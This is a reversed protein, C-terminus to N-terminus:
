GPSSALLRLNAQTGADGLFRKLQARLTAEDDCAIPAEDYLDLTAVPPTRDPVYARLLVQPQGQEGGRVMVRWQQGLNTLYGRELWCRVAGGSGQEIGQCFSQLVTLAVPAQAPQAGINRVIDSFENENGPPPAM